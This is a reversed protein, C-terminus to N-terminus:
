EESVFARFTANLTATIQLQGPILTGAEKAAMDVASVYESGYSYSAEEVAELVLNQAGNAEAIVRAKWWAEEMAKKFALEKATHHDHVGYQLGYIINAGAQTADDLFAAVSDLDLIHVEYVHRVTFDETTFRNLEENWRENQYMTFESTKILEPSTYQSFLELLQETVEKSHDLAEKATLGEANVGVWLMAKTPPTVMQGSAQVQITFSQPAAAALGTQTLLLALGLVVLLKKRM